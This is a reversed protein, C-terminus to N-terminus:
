LRRKWPWAAWEPAANVAKMTGNATQMVYHFATKITADPNPDYTMLYLENRDPSWALKELRSGKVGNKGLEFEFTATPTLSIADASRAPQAPTQALVLFMWLM